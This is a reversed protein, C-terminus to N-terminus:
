AINLHNAQILRMKVAADDALEHLSHFWTSVYRGHEV